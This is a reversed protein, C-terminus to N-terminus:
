EVTALRPRITAQAPTPVGSATQAAMNRSINWAAALDSSNKHTPVASCWMSLRSMSSMSLRNMRIGLSARSIASPMRVINMAGNPMSMELHAVMTDSTSVLLRTSSTMRAKPEATVKMNQVLHSPLSKPM